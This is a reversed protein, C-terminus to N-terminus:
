NGFKILDSRTLTANKILNAPGGEYIHWAAYLENFADEASMGDVPAVAKYGRQAAGNTTGAVAGQASTGTVIVTKIGREKLGQNLNSTPAAPARFASSPRARSPRGHGGADSGARGAHLVGDHRPRAGRRPTKQCQARERHLAAARRLEGEHFRAGAARYDKPDDRAQAGAGAAAEREGVGPMVSLAALTAPGAFGIRVKHDIGQDRLRAIWARIPAAAFGFQTVIHVLLGTGAAATEIQETPPRAPV